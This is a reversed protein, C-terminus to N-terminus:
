VSANTQRNRKSDKGPPAPPWGDTTICRIEAKVVRESREGMGIKQQQQGLFRNNDNHSVAGTSEPGWKQGYIRPWVSKSKPVKTGRKGQGQQHHSLCLFEGQPLPRHPSLLVTSPRSSPPPVPPECVGVSRMVYFHKLHAKHRQHAVSCCKCASSYRISRWLACM